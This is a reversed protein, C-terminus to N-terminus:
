EPKKEIKGEYAAFRERLLQLDKAVQQIEARQEVIQKELASLKELQTAFEKNTLEISKEVSYVRVDSKELLVAREKAIQEIANLREKCNAISESNTTWQMVHTSWMSKPVSENSVCNIQNQLNNLCNVFYGTISLMCLFTISIITGGFLKIWLPTREEEIERKNKKQIEEPADQM